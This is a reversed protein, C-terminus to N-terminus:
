VYNGNKHLKNLNLNNERDEKTKYVYSHLLCFFCIHFTNGSISKQSDKM